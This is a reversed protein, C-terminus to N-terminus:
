INKILKTYFDSGTQVAMKDHNEWNKDVCTSLFSCLYFSFNESIISSMFMDANRSKRENENNYRREIENVTIIMDM